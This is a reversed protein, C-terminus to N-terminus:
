TVCRLTRYSIPAEVNASEGCFITQLWGCIEQLALVLDSTNARVGGRLHLGLTEHVDDHAFLLLDDDIATVTLRLDVDFMVERVSKANIKKVGSPLVAPAEESSMM